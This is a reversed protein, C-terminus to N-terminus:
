SGCSGRGACKRGKREQYSMMATMEYPRSKLISINVRLFTAYHILSFGSRDWCNRYSIATEIEEGDVYYQGHLSEVFSPVQEEELSATIDLEITSRPEGYISAAFAGGVYYPVGLQEFAEIILKLALFPDDHDAFTFEELDVSEKIRVAVDEGYWLATWRLRIEAKSWEPHQRVLASRSNRVIASTLSRMAEARAGDGARRMIDFHLKEVEPSTDM